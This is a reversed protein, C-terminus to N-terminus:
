IRADVGGEGIIITEHSYVRATPIILYRNNWFTLPKVLSNEMHNSSSLLIVVREGIIIKIADVGGEWEV